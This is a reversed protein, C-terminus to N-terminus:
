DAKGSPPPKAKGGGGGTGVGGPLEVEGKPPIVKPKEACGVAAIFGVVLAVRTVTRLNM